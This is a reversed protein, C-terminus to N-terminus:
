DIVSIWPFSGGVRPQSHYQPPNRAPYGTGGSLLPVLAAGADTCASINAMSSGLSCAITSLM